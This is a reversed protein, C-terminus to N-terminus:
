EETTLGLAHLTDPRLRRLLNKRALFLTARVTSIELNMVEAIQVYSLDEQSFLILAQRQKEPLHEMATQVEAWALLRLVTADPTPSPSPRSEQWPRDEEGGDDLSVVDYRGKERLLDYSRNRAVRYLFPLLAGERDMRGLNLYLALFAERIIDEEATPDGLLRRVFRRVAPLLHTQLADFAAHDGGRARCFLLTRIREADSPIPRLTDPGNDPSHLKMRSTLRFFYFFTLPKKAGEDWHGINKL